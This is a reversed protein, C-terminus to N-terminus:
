RSEQSSSGGIGTSSGGGVTGAVSSLRAMPVPPQPKGTAPPPQNCQAVHTLTNGACNGTMVM